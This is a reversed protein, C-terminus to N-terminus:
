LTIHVDDGVLEILHSRDSGAVMAKYLGPELEVAAPGPGYDLRAVERGAGDSIVIQEGGLPAALAVQVAFLPASDREILAIDRSSDVRIEPPQISVDAAVEDIVNHVYDKVIQGTVRGQRNPRANRLAQLLAETFIGRVAGNMPRERATAGWSTGYAYFTRVKAALGPKSTNPLPPPRISQLPTVTRCCDMVLVIEDFVGNRRFWDAYATGAVHPAFMLEADAAFLAASDMDGPDSFGHGAMYLYLRRGVRGQGLGATVLPRFVNNVENEVPHVDGVGTPGPPHFDTTLLLKLNTPPVAGGDAALLWDRMRCADACPGGLTTLGPYANIGIVVAHDDAAL